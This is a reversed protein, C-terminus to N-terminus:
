KKLGPKIRNEGGHELRLTSLACQPDELRACLLKVGAEGPHNYTLDLEKLHSPNSSLASALSCCGTKTIMCGSLRLIQLRCHSSKLGASLLDVGSDQLDNNSLDLIKLSSNETLLVSKLNECTKVGLICSSLLAKRCNSAAPVLRRYGEESTNFKKPDLEDLVDESFQLM